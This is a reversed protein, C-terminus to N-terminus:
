VLEGMRNDYMIRLSAKKQYSQAHANLKDEFSSHEDFFYRNCSMLSRSTKMKCDCTVFDEDNDEDCIITSVFVEDRYIQGLTLPEIQGIKRKGNFPSLKPLQRYELFPKFLKRGFGRSSKGQNGDTEVPVAEDIQEEVILQSEVRRVLPEPSAVVPSPKEIDDVSSASKLVPPPPPAPKKKRGSFGFLVVM